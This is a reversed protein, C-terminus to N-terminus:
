FDKKCLRIFANTFYQPYSVMFDNWEVNQTVKEINESIFKLSQKRLMSDNYLESLIYTHIVSDANLNEALYERCKIKLSEVFYKEAAIYLDIAINKIDEPIYATYIYKLMARVVEPKCDEIVVKNTLNEKLSYNFMAKFVPSRAALICKHARIEIFESSKIAGCGSSSAKTFSSAMSWDNNSLDSKFKKAVPNGLSSDDNLNRRNLSNVRKNQENVQENSSETSEPSKVLLILDYFSSSNFYSDESLGQSSRNLGAATKGGDQPQSHSSVTMQGSSLSFLSTGAASDNTQTLQTSEGNTSQESNSNYYYQSFNESLLKCYHLSENLKKIYDHKQEDLRMRVRVSLTGGACAKLFKDKQYLIAHKHILQKFGWDNSKNFKNVTYKVYIDQNNNDVISFMMQIKVPEDSLYKLFISLFNKCDGGAGNPYFILRWNSSKKAAATSASSSLSTTTTPPQSSSMTTTAMVANTDSILNASGSSSSGSCSNVAPISSNNSGSDTQSKSTQPQSSYILHNTFSFIPSQVFNTPLPETSVGGGGGVSSSKHILEDINEIKYVYSFWDRSALSLNPANAGNLSASSSIPLQYSSSSSISSTTPRNSVNSLGSQSNILYNSINRTNTTTTTTSSPGSTACTLLSLSSTTPILFLQQQTSANNHINSSSSSAAAALPAQQVQTNTSATPRPKNIPQSLSSRTNMISTSTSPGTAYFQQEHSMNANGPNPPNEFPTSSPTLSPVSNLSRPRSNSTFNVQLSTPNDESGSNTDNSALSTM